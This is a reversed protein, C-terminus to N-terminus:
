KRLTLIEGGNVLTLVREFCPIVRCNSGKEAVHEFYGQRELLFKEYLPSDKPTASGRPTNILGLIIVEPSQNWNYPGGFEIIQYNENSLPPFLSPTFMVIAPKSPASLSTNLFSLIQKYSEYQDVYEKSQTRRSLDEFTNAASVSWFLISISFLGLTVAYALAQLIKVKAKDRETAMENLSLNIMVLLGCIFLVAGPYLYFGWLRKAGFIISANLAAGALLIALAAIKKTSLGRKQYAFTCFCIIFILTILALAYGTVKPAILWENFFYEIWTLYTTSSQDAGHKTNLFTSGIWVKLPSKFLYIAPFFSSLLLIAKLLRGFDLKKSLFGVGFYCFALYLIPTFLIPVALGLGISFYLASVELPAWFHLKSDRKPAESYILSFFSFVVLAPLTSIKTGFALGAFLWYWGFKLNNKFFYFCFISLFLLQLPEPKPMSAYYESFPISLISVILVLRLFWNQLLGFALILCTSEILFVQLMRGSIIQGPEGWIWEPLFSAAAMSIWLSRGYRQDGDVIAEWFQQYDVPHLIKKVGDFTIREDMFLAFRGTTLDANASTSLVIFLGLSLIILILYASNFKYSKLPNVIDIKM